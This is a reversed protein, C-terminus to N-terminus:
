VEAHLLPANMHIYPPGGHPVTACRSQEHQPQGAHVSLRASQDTGCGHVAHTVEAGRAATRIGILSRLPRAGVSNHGHAIDARDVRARGGNAGGVGATKSAVPARRPLRGHHAFVAVARKRPVCPWPQGCTGCDGLPLAHPHRDIVRQAVELRTQVSVAPAAERDSTVPPPNM